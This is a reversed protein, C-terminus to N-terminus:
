YNCYASMALYFLSQALKALSIRWNRSQHTSNEFSGWIKEQKSEDLHNDHEFIDITPLDSGLKNFLYKYRNFSIKVDLVQPYWKPNSYLGQATVGHVMMLIWVRFIERIEFVKPHDRPHSIKERIEDLFTLYCDRKLWINAYDVPTMVKDPGVGSFRTCAELTPKISIKCKQLHGSTAGNVEIRDCFSESEYKWKTVEYVDFPDEFYEQHTAEGDSEFLGSHFDSLDIDGDVPYEDPSSVDVVESDIFDDM